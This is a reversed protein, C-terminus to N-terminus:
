GHAHGEGDEPQWVAGGQELKAMQAEGIGLWEALVTRTHEGLRPGRSKVSGPTRSLRSPSDPYELRGIDPHCVEVFSGRSRLQIDRWLDESDQVPGVALGARQLKHSVQFPTLTGAWSQIADRLAERQGATVAGETLRLDDRALFRCIVEWDGADELELAVWGDAGLCKVVGSFLAGPVENPGAEFERGNALFDVYLPAMLAAGTETQAMDIFVGPAGQDVAALAAV